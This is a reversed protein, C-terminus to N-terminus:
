ETVHNGGERIKIKAPVGVATTNGPISHIVTAGAGIVAWEGIKVNPILIAGAGIHVGVDLQVNGTLTANPSVHAFDSVKNDHEVVASTNIIVHDGIKTNASIVTNAMIVTGNGVCASPSVQASPHIISLFYDQELNLMEVIEKRSHNNGIGVIFRIGPVEDVFYKHSSIPGYFINEKIFSKEYKNDLFGVIENGEYSLIIDQVVKSHGGYGIIIIKM